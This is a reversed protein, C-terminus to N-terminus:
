MAGIENSCCQAAHWEIFGPTAVASVVGSGCATAQDFTSNSSWILFSTMSLVFLGVILYGINVKKFNTSSNKM